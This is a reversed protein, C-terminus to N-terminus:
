ELCVYAPCQCRSSTQGRLPRKKQTRDTRMPTLTETSHFVVSLNFWHSNYYYRLCMKSLSKFLHGKPSNSIRNSFSKVVFHFCSIRPGFTQSSTPRMSDFIFLVYFNVIIVFCFSRRLVITVKGM